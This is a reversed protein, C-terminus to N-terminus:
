LKLFVLINRLFHVFVTYLPLYHSEKKNAGFIQSSIGFKKLSRVDNATKLFLILIHVIFSHRHRSHLLYTSLVPNM